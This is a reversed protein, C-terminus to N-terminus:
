TLFSDFCNPGSLRYEVQVGHAGSHKYGRRGGLRNANPTSSFITVRTGHSFKSTEIMQMSAEREIRGKRM